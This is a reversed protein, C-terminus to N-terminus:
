ACEDLVKIVEDGILLYSPGNLGRPHDSGGSWETRVQPM